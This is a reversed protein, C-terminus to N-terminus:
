KPSVKKVRGNEWVVIKRGTEKAHKVVNNVAKKMANDAKEELTMRRKM